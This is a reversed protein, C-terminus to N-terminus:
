SPGLSSLGPALGFAPLGRKPTQLFVMECCRNEVAVVSEQQNRNIPPLVRWCFAQNRCKKTFQAGTQKEKAVGRPMQSNM